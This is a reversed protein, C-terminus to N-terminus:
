GLREKGATGGLDVQQAANRGSKAGAQYGPTGMKKLLERQERDWRKMRAKREAETEPAPEAYPELNTSPRLHPHRQYFLEEVEAERSKLVLAGEEGRNMSSRWLRTWFEEMFSDTYAKRYTKVEFGKGSVVPDENRKRCEAEYMRSVKAGAKMWGMMEGVRRREVGSRRLRYVNEQDSLNPDIRPEMRDQFVLRAATYLMEGYRVDSEFGVAEGVYHAGDATNQRAYVAKVGAHHMAYAFLTRYNFAYSGGVPCIDVVRVVPKLSPAEGRDRAASEEIRYKTMMQEAKDRFAQAELPGTNEHDAQALLAQIRRLIADLNKPEDTM